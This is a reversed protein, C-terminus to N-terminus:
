NDMKAPVGMPNESVSCNEGFNNWECLDRLEFVMRHMAHAKNPEMSCPNQCLVLARFGNVQRDKKMCPDRLTLGFTEFRNCIKAIKSMKKHHSRQLKSSPRLVVEPVDARRWPVPGIRRRPGSGMHCGCSWSHLLRSM